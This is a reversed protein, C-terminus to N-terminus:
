VPGRGQAAAPPDSPYDGPASFPLPLRTVARHRALSRAPGPSDASQAGQRSPHPAERSQAARSRPHPALSPPCAAAVAAAGPRFPPPRPGAPQPPSCAAPRSLSLHASRPAADPTVWVRVPGAGRSLTARVASISLPRPRSTTAAEPHPSAPCHCSALVVKGTASLGPGRHVLLAQRTAPGLLRHWPPTPPPSLRRAAPAPLAPARWSLCHPHFRSRRRKIEQLLPPSLRPRHLHRTLRERIPDGSSLVAHSARSYGSGDAFCGSMLHHAGLLLVQVTLMRKYLHIMCM